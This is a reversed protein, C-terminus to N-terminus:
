LCDRPRPPETPAELAPLVCLPPVLALVRCKQEAGPSGRQPVWPGKWQRKSTQHGGAEGPSPRSSGAQGWALGHFASCQRGAGQCSAAPAKQHSLTWCAIDAMEGREEHELDRGKELSVKGVHIVPLNSYGDRSLLNSPEM